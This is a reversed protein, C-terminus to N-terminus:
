ECLRKVWHRRWSSAPAGGCGRPRITLGYQTCHPRELTSLSLHVCHGFFADFHAYSSLVSCQSRYLSAISSTLPFHLRRAFTLVRFPFFWESIGRALEFNMSARMFGIPVFNAHVPELLMMAHFTTVPLLASYATNTYKQFRQTCWRQVKLAQLILKCLERYCWSPRWSWSPAKRRWCPRENLSENTVNHRGKSFHPDFFFPL